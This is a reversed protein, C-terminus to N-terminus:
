WDFRFDTKGDSGNWVLTWKHCAMVVQFNKKIKRTKNEGPQDDGAGNEIKLFKKKWRSCIKKQIKRIIKSPAYALPFNTWESKSAPKSGTSNDEFTRKITGEVDFDNERHQECNLVQMKYNWKIKKKNKSFKWKCLVGCSTNFNQVWELLDWHM